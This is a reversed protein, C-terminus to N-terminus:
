NTQWQLGRIKKFVLSGRNCLERVLIYLAPRAWLEQLQQFQLLGTYFEVAQQRAEESITDVKQFVIPLILQLMQPVHSAYYRQEPHKQKSRYYKVIDNMFEYVKYNISTHIVLKANWVSHCCIAVLLMDSISMTNNMVFYVSNVNAPLQKYKFDPNNMQQDAKLHLKIKNISDVIEAVESLMFQICDDVELSEICKLNNIFDSGTITWDYNHCAKITLQHWYVPEDFLEIKYQKKRNDEISQHVGNINVIPVHPISHALINLWNSENIEVGDFQLENISRCTGLINIEDKTLQLQYFSVRVLNETSRLLDKMGINSSIITSYLKRAVSLPALQNKGVINFRQLKPSNNHLAIMSDKNGNQYDITRLKHLTVPIELINPDSAIAGNQITIHLYELSLHCACLVARIIVVNSAIKLKKLKNLTHSLLRSSNNFNYDSYPFFLTLEVLNVLHGCLEDFAEFELHGVNLDLVRLQEFLNKNDWITDNVQLGLTHISPLSYSLLQPHNFGTNLECVCLSDGNNELISQLVQGCSNYRSHSYMSCHWSLGKLENPIPPIKYYVENMFYIQEGQFSVKLTNAYKVCFQLLMVAKSEPINEDFLLHIIHCHRYVVQEESMNQLMELLVSSLITISHNPSWCSSENLIMNHWQHSVLSMTHVMEYVNLFQFVACFCDQPVTVLEDQQM